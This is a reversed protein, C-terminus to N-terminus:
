CFWLVRSSKIMMFEWQWVLQFIGSGYKKLPDGQTWLDEMEM